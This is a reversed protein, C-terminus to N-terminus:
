GMKNGYFRSLNRMREIQYVMVMGLVALMVMVLLPHHPNDRLYKWGHWYPLLFLVGLETTITAFWIVRSSFWLGSIAILVPYGIILPGTEAGRVMLVLSFILVDTAIWACAVWTPQMQRRLMAQYLVSLAGWLGLLILVYCHMPLEVNGSVHYNVQIIGAFAALAGVHSALAPERRTWHVFSRWWSLPQAAVPEGALFHQLDAVLDAASAYRQAPDKELCKLIISELPRPVEPRLQRPPAPERELVMVITDLTTPGKFPPQGTLLEYLIAGLAYVDVAPTLSKESAAQEPAMYSPTGIIMGSSTCNADDSLLSKALGFDALKPHWSILASDQTRLGSHANTLLVNGPKIDRHLIGQQHLFHVAQALPVVFRVAEDVPVSQQQAKHQSLLRELSTGELLEMALYHQGAHEGVDYVQVIHPHQLNAVARAEQLFRGVEAASALPGHLIMKLAVQRQLDVQRARFVIGMGGRGLEAELVYKGFQSGLLQSHHSSPTARSAPPPLTTPSAALEQLHDLCGAYQRLTEHSALLAACRSHEGAQLASLYEDLIAADKEEAQNM